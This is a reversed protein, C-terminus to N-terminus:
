SAIGVKAVLQSSVGDVWGGDLFPIGRCFSAHIVYFVLDFSPDAAYAKVAKPIEDPSLYHKVM